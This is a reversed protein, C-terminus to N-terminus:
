STQTGYLVQGLTNPQPYVHIMVSLDETANRESNDEFAVRAVPLTVDRTTSDDCDYHLIVEVPTPLTCTSRGMIFQGDTGGATGVYNEPMFYQLDSWANPFFAIDFSPNDLQNSPTTTSGSLRESTRLVQAVSPSISGLMFAPVIVSNIEVSLQGGMPDSATPLPM